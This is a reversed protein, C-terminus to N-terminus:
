ILQPRKRSGLNFLQQFYLLKGGMLDLFFQSFKYHIDFLSKKLRLIYEPNDAWKPFPIYDRVSDQVLREFNHWFPWLFLVRNIVADIMKQLIELNPIQVGMKASLEETLSRYQEFLEEYEM